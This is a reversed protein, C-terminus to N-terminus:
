EPDTGAIDCRAAGIGPLDCALSDGSGPTGCYGVGPHLDDMRLARPPVYAPRDDSPKKQPDDSM